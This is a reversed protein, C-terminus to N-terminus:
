YSKPASPQLPTFIGMMWLYGLLTLVLHSTGNKNVHKRSKECQGEIQGEYGKGNLDNRITM